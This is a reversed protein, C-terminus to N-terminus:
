SEQEPPTQQACRPCEGNLLCHGDPDAMTTIMRRGEACHAEPSVPNACSALHWSLPRSPRSPDLGATGVVVRWLLRTSKPPGDKVIVTM